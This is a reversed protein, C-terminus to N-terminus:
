VHYVCIGGRPLIFRFSLEPSTIKGMSKVRNMVAKFTKGHAIIRGRITAIYQGGYQMQLHSYDM